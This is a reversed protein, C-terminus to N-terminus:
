QAPAPPAQAAPAPPAVALKSLAVQPASLRSALAGNVYVDFAAPDSVDATLGATRPARFAEGAAMWR